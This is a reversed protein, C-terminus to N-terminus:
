CQESEKQKSASEKARIVMRTPHLEAELSLPMEGKGTLCALYLDLYDLSAEGLDLAGCDKNNLVLRTRAGGDVAEVFGKTGFIRLAENGWAGFEPSNLYNAIVAGVGGNDLRLTMAAAMQLGGEKPNGLGTEVAEIEAIRTGAVHEIFRLAHVGAQCILGGDIDEDQPRNDHYPYSKQAMVQVVTGIEGAQVLRRMALYPQAFATGAMEHFQRGTREVAAFIADLDAETTACPKEAYVHKGAELCRIAERAQACRRPSCLSILEVRDDALLEELSDYHRIGARDRLAEPLQSRNFAATAALEALPHDTLAQQIQHGNGGYLGIQVKAM